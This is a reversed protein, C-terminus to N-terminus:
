IFGSGANLQHDPFPAGGGVRAPARSHFRGPAGNGRSTGYWMRATGYIPNIELARKFERESGPWDWDCTMKIWGLGAHAEALTEDIELAKMAAAKAKPCAESPPLVEYFTFLAYSEALGAYALGYSPDKDIAQQFYENAKKLLEATRLNWYYRGKLYLRY